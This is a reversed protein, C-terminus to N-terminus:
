RIISFKGSKKQSNENSVYFVYVGSALNRGVANKPEWELKNSFSSKEIEAVREGAINFIEITAEATLNEFTIYDADYDGGSGPKYPNPYVFVKKLNDSAVSQATVVANSIYGSDSSFSESSCKGMINQGCVVYSSMSSSSTKGGTSFLYNVLQYNISLVVAGSIAASVLVMLLVFLSNKVKM